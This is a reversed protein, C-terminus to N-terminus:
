LRDIQLFVFIYSDICAEKWKGKSTFYNMSLNYGPPVILFLNSRSLNYFFLEHMTLFFLLIMPHAVGLFSGEIQYYFIQGVFFTILAVVFGGIKRLGLLTDTVVGLGCYEYHKGILLM